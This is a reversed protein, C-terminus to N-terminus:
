RWVRPDYDYIVYGEGIESEVPGIPPDDHPSQNNFIIPPETYITLKWKGAYELKWCLGTEGECRIQYNSVWVATGAAELNVKEPSTCDCPPNGKGNGAMLWGSVILFAAMLFTKKM